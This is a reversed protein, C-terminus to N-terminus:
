QALIAISNLVAVLLAISMSVLLAIIADHVKFIVEGFGIYLLSVKSSRETDRWSEKMLPDLLNAGDSDLMTHGNFRLGTAGDGTSAQAWVVPLLDPRLESVGSRLSKRPNAGRGVCIQCARVTAFLFYLIKSVTKM